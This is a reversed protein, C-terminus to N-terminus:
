AQYTYQTICCDINYQLMRQLPWRRSRDDVELLQVTSCATSPRVFGGEWMPEIVVIAPWPRDPAIRIICIAADCPRPTTPLRQPLDVFRTRIHIRDIVRDAIILLPYLRCIPWVVLSKGRKFCFVVGSVLKPQIRINPWYHFFCDSSTRDAQTAAWLDM